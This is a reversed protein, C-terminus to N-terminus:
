GFRVFDFINPSTLLGKLFLQLHDGVRHRSLLPDSNDGKRAGGAGAFRGHDFFDYPIDVLLALADFDNGNVIEKEGTRFVPFLRQM